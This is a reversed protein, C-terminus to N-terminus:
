KRNMGQDEQAEMQSTLSQSGDKKMNSVDLQGRPM